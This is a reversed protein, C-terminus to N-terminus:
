VLQVKYNLKFLNNEIAKTKEENILKTIKNDILLNVSSYLSKKNNRKKLEPNIYNKILKNEILKSYLIIDNANHKTIININKKTITIKNYNVQHNQFFLNPLEYLSIIHNLLKFTDEVDFLLDINNKLNYFSLKISEESDPNTLGIGSFQNSIVNKPLKNQTFLNEISDNISFYGRNIGWRYHSICRQIPDRIITIFLYNKKLENFIEFPVHGYLFQLNSSNILIKNKLYNNYGTIGGKDNNKFLPGKLRHTTKFLHSLLVVFTTGACKPTHFFFIPKNFKKNSQFGICKYFIKDDLM